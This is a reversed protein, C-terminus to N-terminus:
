RARGTHQPLQQGAPCRKPQLRHHFRCYRCSKEGTVIDKLPGPRRCIHCHGCQRLCRNYIVLM